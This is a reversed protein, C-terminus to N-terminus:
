TQIRSFSCTLCIDVATLTHVFICNSKGARAIGARLQLHRRWRLSGSRMYQHQCSRCHLLYWGSIWQWHEVIPEPQRQHFSFADGADGECCECGSGAHWDSLILLSVNSSSICCPSVSTLAAPKLQWNPWSGPWSAVLTGFSSIRGASPSITSHRGLPGRQSRCCGTWFPDGPDIFSRTGKLRVVTSCTNSLFPISTSSVTSRVPRDTIRLVQATSSSRRNRRTTRGARRQTRCTAFTPCHM